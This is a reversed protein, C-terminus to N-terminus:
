TWNQTPQDVQNQNEISPDEDQGPAQWEDERPPTIEDADRNFKAPKDQDPQPKTFPKKDPTTKQTPPNATIEKM